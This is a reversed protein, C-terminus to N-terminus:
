FDQLSTVYRDPLDFQLLGPAHHEARLSDSPPSWANVVVRLSLAAGGPQHRTSGEAWPKLGLCKTAPNEKGEHKDHLCILM